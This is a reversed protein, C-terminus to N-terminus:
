PLHCTRHPRDPNRAHPSRSRASTRPRVAMRDV